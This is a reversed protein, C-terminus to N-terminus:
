PMLVRPIPQAGPTEPQETTGPRVPEGSRGPLPVLVSPPATQTGDPLTRKLYHGNESQYKFEDPNRAIFQEVREGYIVRGNRTLVLDSRDFDGVYVFSRVPDHYYYAPYGRERLDKVYMEAVERRQRFELTNYFVAILLGHTGRATSVDGEAGSPGTPEPTSLLEPGAYFFPTQQRYALSRILEIDRQYEPPFILAGDSGAVKTYEGYYITSGMADSSVRVDRARLQPVKRLLDALYNASQRHDPTEIRTCRITWREVNARSGGFLGGGAQTPGFLGGGATGGPNECGGTTLALLLFAVTWATARAKELQLRGRDQLPRKGHRGNKASVARLRPALFSVLRPRARGPRGAALAHRDIQPLHM